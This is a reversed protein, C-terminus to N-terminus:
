GIFEELDACFDRGDTQRLGTLKDLGVFEAEGDDTPDSPTGNHDVLLSFRIMGTDTFLRSGNLSYHNPGAVQVQITLTGDGNDAVRFDRDNLAYRNTFVDGTVPNAWSQTGQFRGSWHWLGDPGKEQTVITGVEHVTWLVDFDLSCDEGEGAEYYVSDVWEVHEVTAPGAVASAIGSLGALTLAAVVGVCRRTRGNRILTHTM